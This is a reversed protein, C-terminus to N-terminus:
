VVHRVLLIKNANTQVNPRMNESISTPTMLTVQDYPWWQRTAFDWYFSRIYFISFLLFIGLHLHYQLM